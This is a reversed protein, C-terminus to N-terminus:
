NVKFRLGADVDANGFSNSVLELEEMMGGHIEIRMRNSEVGAFM